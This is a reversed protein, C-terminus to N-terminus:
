IYLHASPPNALHLEEDLGKMDDISSLKWFQSDTVGKPTELGQYPFPEKRGFFSFGESLSIEEKPSYLMADLHDMMSLGM